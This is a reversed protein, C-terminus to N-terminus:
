RSKYGSQAPRCTKPTRRPDIRRARAGRHAPAKPFQIFAILDREWDIREKTTGM